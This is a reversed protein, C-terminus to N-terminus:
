ANASDGQKRRRAFQASGRTSRFALGRLYDEDSRVAATVARAGAAFPPRQRGERVRRTSPVDGLLFGAANRVSATANTPWKNPDNPSLEAFPPHIQHDAEPGTEGDSQDSPDEHAEDDGKQNVFEPHAELKGIEM